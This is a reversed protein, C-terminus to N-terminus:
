ACTGRGAPALHCENWTKVFTAARHAMTDATAGPTFIASGIGFGAAGAAVCSAIRTPIAFGPICVLNRNRAAAIVGPITNPSLCLQAGAKEVADAEAQTLVTGAGVLLRDEFHRRIESIL